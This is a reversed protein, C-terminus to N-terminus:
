FIVKMFRVPFLILHIVATLLLIIKDRARWGRYNAIARIEGFFETVQEWRGPSLDLLVEEARRDYAQEAM